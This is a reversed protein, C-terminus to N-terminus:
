DQDVSPVAEDGENEEEDDPRGIEPDILPEDSVSSNYERMLDNALQRAVKGITYPTPHGGYVELDYEDPDVDMRMQFKNKWIPFTLQSDGEMVTASANSFDENLIEGYDYPKEDENGPILGTVLDRFMQPNDTPRLTYETNVTMNQGEVGQEEAYDEISSVTKRGRLKVSKVEESDALKQEVNHNYHPNIDIYASGPANETIRPKLRESIRTKIGKNKFKRVILIARTCDEDLIHFLFYYPIEQAHNAERADEIRDHEEIDWFDANIGYDGSKMVGEITNGDREKHRVTFTRQNEEDVDTDDLWDECFENFLDSLNDVPFSSEHENIETLDWFEDTDGKERLRVWYPVLKHVAM